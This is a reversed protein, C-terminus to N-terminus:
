RFLSQHDLKCFNNSKVAVVDAVDKVFRQFVDPNTNQALELLYTINNHLLGKSLNEYETTAVM